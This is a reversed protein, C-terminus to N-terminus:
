FPLDGNSSAEFPSSFPNAPVTNNDSFSTSNVDYEKFDCVAFETTSYAGGQKRESLVKEFQKFATAKPTNNKGFFNTFAAQFQRGDNGTKVGFMIRVRNEPQLAIGERIEKVNGTFYNAIGDLRCECYEPHEVLYWKGTDKNYQMVDDIGLYAKMFGTLDEEGVYCPRYDKDLNAPGNSYMPIEHNKAQEITVWATRGYKDIVQVKTKDKNYRYRNQVFMSVSVPAIDMGTIEPNPKALFTIRVNKIKEGDVEVEGVYDPEAELTRGYVKELTLKDPNVAQIFCPAIGIYRKFEATGETSEKGKALAMLSISKRM